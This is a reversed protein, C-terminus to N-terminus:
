ICRSKKTFRMVMKGNLSPIVVNNEGVYVLFIEELSEEEFILNDSRELQDDDFLKFEDPMLPNFELCNTKLFLKNNVSPLDRAM